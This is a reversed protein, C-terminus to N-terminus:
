VAPASKATGHAHEAEVDSPAGNLEGVAQAGEVAGVVQAGEAPEPSSEAIPEDGGATGRERVTVSGAGDTGARGTAPRDDGPRRTAPMQREDSAEPGGAAFVREWADRAGEEPRTEAARLAPRPPEAEPRGDHGTEPASDNTRPSM